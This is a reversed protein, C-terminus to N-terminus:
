FISVSGKDLYLWRFPRQKDRCSKRVCLGPLLTLAPQSCKGQPRGCLQGISRLQRGDMNIDLPGNKNSTQRAAAHM